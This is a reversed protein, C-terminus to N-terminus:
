LTVNIRMEQSDRIITLIITDGKKFHNLVNSLPNGLDIASDNVATIIDYIKIGAKEAASSSIIALGQKGSASFVYAGRDKPLNHAAAYLPTITVYHVGLEPTKEIEGRIVRDLSNKIADAPIAFFKVQNDITSLGVMGVLEGNYDIVPSGLFESRDAFDIDLVGERKESSAITKGSINYTRNLDSIIGAAYRNQYNEVSKGIAIVKKGSFFDRANSFSITSLNTTPISLYAINSFTDIGKLTADQIKGDFLMVKYTANEEIITDRYTAILGDSTVIFGNGMKETIQNTPLQKKNSQNLRSVISVVSTAAQSAVKNVSDPEKVVIQETKTIITTNESFNKFFGSQSFPRYMGLRPFVYHEMFTAGIGGIVFFVAIIGIIKGTKKMSLM